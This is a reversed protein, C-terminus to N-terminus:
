KWVECFEVEEVFYEIDSKEYNGQLSQCAMEATDLRSYIGINQKNYHNGGWELCVVLYLKSPAKM